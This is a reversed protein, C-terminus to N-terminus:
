LLLCNKVLASWNINYVINESYVLQFFTYVDLREYMKMKM